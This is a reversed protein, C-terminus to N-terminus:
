GVSSQIFGYGKFFRDRQSILVRAWKTLYDYRQSDDGIHNEVARLEGGDPNNFVTATLLPLFTVPSILTRFVVIETLVCRPLIDPQDHQSDVIQAVRQRSKSRYKKNVGTLDRGFIHKAAVM